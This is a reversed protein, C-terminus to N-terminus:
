LAYFWDKFRATIEKNMGGLNWVKPYKSYSKWDYVTVSNGDEGTFIWEYQTKDGDGGFFHPEGLCKVMLHYDMKITVDHFSTGNINADPNAIFHM